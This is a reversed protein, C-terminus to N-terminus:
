GGSASETDLKMPIAGDDGVRAITSGRLSVQRPDLGIIKKLAGAVAEARAQALNALSAESIMETKAIRERLATAYAPEDLTADSVPQGEKPHNFPQEVQALQDKGIREEFLSELFQRQRKVTNHDGLEKAMRADLADFQLKGRDAEPDVVGPVVLGLRPRMKLAQALHLIKEKEPPALEARGPAFDIHDLADDEEGLLGALMQFPSTILNTLLDFVAKSIVSSVDFQPDNLNGSVPLDINIQGDQDKLLAIALELPLNMAGPVDLKEGLEFDRIVVRNAGNLKGADIAYQLDVDLRGKAIRRGAFKVTYPSLGPFEINRFYVNIKTNKGPDFPPLRGGIKVQGFEGVQGRLTVRTPSAGTSAFTSMEGQLDTIKESFPLPLSADSYDAVGQAIVIKGVSVKLPAAAQATDSSPPQGNHPLTASAKLIHSFNTSQDAAVRFRLYPAGITVQSIQLENSAQRYEYRDVGLREWSLVPTNEIEDKLKLSRIDGHGTITLGDPAQMKVDAEGDFKGDNITLKALDHLYAQAAAIRLDSTSLKADIQLSPLISFGGQMKILGGSTVGTSLTFPFTAGPQNSLTDIALDIPTIEIKEPERLTHDDFRATANKVEFKGLTVSWSADAAPPQTTPEQAPVSTQQPASLWPMPGLQGDEQRRLALNAGNITFTDAGATREPWALHGGTLHLEPLTLFPTEADHERLTLNSLLVGVHDVTLALAGDLREQLRYDLDANVSGTPASVKITDGFYRTLLPAYPGKVTVHGTSVLPNLGSTSAWELTAGDEMELHIHQEGMRQPLTSLHNVEVNVPGISTKFLSAPVHDTFDAAANLINLHHIDLRILGHNTALKASETPQPVTRILRGINTDTESYRIVNGKLGELRIEDFSWAWRLLSIPSFRIYLREFGILPSGDSEHVQFGRLDASLALPNIRLDNLTVTREFTKQLSTVIERQLIPPAFVFGALTYTLFLAVVWFRKRHFDLWSKPEGLWARLAKFAGKEARENEGRPSKRHRPTRRTPPVIPM